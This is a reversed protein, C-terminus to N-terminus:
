SASALRAAERNREYALQRSSRLMDAISLHKGPVFAISPLPLEEFPEGNAECRRRRRERILMALRLSEDSKADAQPALRRELQHLRRIVAKM